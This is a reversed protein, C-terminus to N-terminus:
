QKVKGLVFERQEIAISHFHFWKTDEKLKYEINQINNPPEIFERSILIAEDKWLDENYYFGIEPFLKQFFEYKDKDSDNIFSFCKYLRANFSEWESNQENFNSLIDYINKSAAFFIESNNREVTKGSSKYTYKWKLYAIDPFDKAEAHGIDPLINYELQKIRSLKEWKHAKFISIKSIDNDQSSNLGSFGQHAWTDAYSHLAIGLRILNPIRNKEKDKKLINLARQILLTAIEGAPTTVYCFDKGEDYVKSPLFHFSVYIKFQVVRKLDSIFQLGKHATCIPDFYKGDYRESNVKLNGTIKLPKHDTADDVFQSAYAIIQADKPSFGAKEALLRITNYHFDIKMLAFKYIFIRIEM